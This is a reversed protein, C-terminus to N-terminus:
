KVKLRRWMEPMSAQEGGFARKAGFGILRGKMLKMAVSCFGIPLAHTSNLPFLCFRPCATWTPADARPVDKVSEGRGLDNQKLQVRQEFYRGWRTNVKQV